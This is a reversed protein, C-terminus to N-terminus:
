LRMRRTKLPYFPRTGRGSGAAELAAESGDPEYFGHRGAWAALETRNRAGVDRRLQEIHHKITHPSLHLRRGLEHDSLGRAVLELLPVQTQRLIRSAGFVDDLLRGSGRPLQLHFVAGGGAVDLIARRAEDAQARLDLVGGVGADLLAGLDWPTLAHPCCVLAAVPLAPERERLERCLEVATRPDLSADIVAVDAEGPAPAIPFGLGEFFTRVAPRSTELLLNPQTAAPAEM